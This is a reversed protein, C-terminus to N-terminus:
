YIEMWQGRGQEQSYIGVSEQQMHLQAQDIEGVAFGWQLLGEKIKQVM